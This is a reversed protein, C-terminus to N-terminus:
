SSQHWALAITDVGMTKDVSMIMTMIKTKDVTWVKAMSVGMQAINIRCTQGCRAATWNAVSQQLM